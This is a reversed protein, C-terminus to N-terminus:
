AAKGNPGRVIQSIRARSLNFRKAIESQPVGAKALERIRERREEWQKLAYDYRM